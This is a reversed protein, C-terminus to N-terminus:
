VAEEKKSLYTITLGTYTITNIILMILVKCILVGLTWEASLFDKSLAIQMLFIPIFLLSPILVIIFTSFLTSFLTKFNIWLASFFNRKEIIIVPLIYAFLTTTIVNAFFYFFSRGLTIIEKIMFFKGSTSRILLARNYLLDYGKSFLIMVLFALFVAIVLHVYQKFIEKQIKKFCVNEGGNIKIVANISMATLFSGLLINIPMQVYNFLQPLLQFNFPYHMYQEGWIRTIMPAFFANTPYQPIFYLIELFILQIFALTTLPILIIPHNKLTDLSARLIAFPQKYFYASKPSM